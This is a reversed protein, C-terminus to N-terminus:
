RKVPGKGSGGLTQNLPPPDGANCAERCSEWNPNNIKSVSGQSPRCTKVPWVIHSTKLDVVIESSIMAQEISLSESVWGQSNETSSVPAGEMSRAKVVPIKRQVFVRLEPLADCQLDSYFSKVSEVM